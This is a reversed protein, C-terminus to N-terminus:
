PATRNILTESYIEQFSALLDTPMPAGQYKKAYHREFINQPSSADQINLASMPRQEQSKAKIDVRRPSSVLRFPKDQVLADVRARLDGIAQDAVYQIDVFPRLDADLNMYVSWDFNQIAEEVKDWAVAPECFRIFDVQQPILISKIEFQNSKKDLEVMKVQHTYKREDFDMSVPSGSYELKVFNNLKCSISQARHIHGLAVYDAGSALTEAPVSDVGGILIRESGAKESGLVTLHGMTVIPINSNLNNACQVCNQYLETIARHYAQDPTESDQIKASVDSARLFPLAVCWAAQNKNQDFLPIVYKSLDESTKDYSGVIHIGGLLQTFHRSLELRAGSDHNGALVVIQAAPLLTKFEVLFQAFVDQAAISPNAVDYIDGAVLLVDVKQEKCENLLWKLFLKQETLRDFGNLELGIHWDSTHILRLMTQEM